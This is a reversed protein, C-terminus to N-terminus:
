GACRPCVTRSAYRPLRSRSGRRRIHAAAATAYTGCWANSTWLTTSSVRWCRAQTKPIGNVSQRRATWSLSALGLGSAWSGSSTATTLSRLYVWELLSWAMYGGINVGGEMAELMANIYGAYYAQRQTDAIQQALPMDAEGEVTFGNETIYIAHGAAKTYRESIHELLLKFGWPVDYPHGNEGRNGIVEGNRAYM